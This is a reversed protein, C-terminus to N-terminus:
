FRRSSYEVENLAHKHGSSSHISLFKSRNDLLAKANKKQAWEFLHKLFADRVFGPSAVIVAKVIGFDVHREVAQAVQVFRDTTRSSWALFFSAQDYFKQVAKDHQGSFQKNKRPIANTLKAKPVTMSSTILCVTALGEQMVVAAVDARQAADLAQDLRYSHMSDWEPKEITCKRQIILDLTHYAGRQM